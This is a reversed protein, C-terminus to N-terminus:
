CNQSLLTPARIFLHRSEANTAIRVKVPLAYPCAGAVGGRVTGRGLVSESSLVLTIMFGTKAVPIFHSPVVSSEIANIVANAAAASGPKPFAVTM